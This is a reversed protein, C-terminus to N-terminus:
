WTKNKLVLITSKILVDGLIMKEPVVKCFSVDPHV